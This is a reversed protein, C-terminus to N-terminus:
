KYSNHQRKYNGNNVEKGILYGQQKTKYEISYNFFLFLHKGIFLKHPEVYHLNTRDITKINGNIFRADRRAQNLIYDLREKVNYDFSLEDKRINLM